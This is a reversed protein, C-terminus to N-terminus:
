IVPWCLVSIWYLLECIIDINVLSTDLNNLGLKCFVDWIELEYCTEIINYSIQILYMETYSM